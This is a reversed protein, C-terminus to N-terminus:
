PRARRGLDLHSRGRQAPSFVKCQLGSRAKRHLTDVEDIRGWFLRFVVTPRFKELSATAAVDPGKSSLFSSTLLDRLVRENPSVRQAESDSVTAEKDSGRLAPAIRRRLQRSLDQARGLEAAEREDAAKGADAWRALKFMRPKGRVAQGGALLDTTGKIMLDDLAALVKANRALASHEEDIFYTRVGKLLGLAHSVSGDGQTTGLYAIPDRLRSPDSLGALTPQNSGAIYVM